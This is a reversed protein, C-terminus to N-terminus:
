LQTKLKQNLPALDIITSISLLYMSEGGKKTKEIM